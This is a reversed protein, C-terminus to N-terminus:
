AANQYRSHIKIEGNGLEFKLGLRNLQSHRSCNKFSPISAIFNWEQISYLCNIVCYLNVSQRRLSHCLSLSQLIIEHSIDDILFRQLPVPGVIFVDASCFQNCFDLNGFYGNSVQNTLKHTTQVLIQISLRAGRSYNHTARHDWGLQSHTAQKSFFRQILTLTWLSLPM